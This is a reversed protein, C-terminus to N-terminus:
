QSRILTKPKEKGRGFVHKKFRKLEADMAKARNQLDAKTEDRAMQELWYAVAGAVAEIRDDHALSGRDKTIRTMQYFLSYARNDSSSSAFRSDAEIVERLFALRHQNMIPELTDIIRPEKQGRAWPAEDVGCQKLTRNLVPKFLENFMGGGYNPEVVCLNVKHTKAISALGELTEPGYGDRFGGVATCILMGYSYKLVCYSTEDSGKGSPDIFMVAGTPAVWEDQKSLYVPGNWRDGTLGVMDLDNIVCDPGSGWQIRAPYKEGAGMSLVILDNLKLPYRDADSVTTDLMFQLAYGSRGYSAKREMLDEMTFRTDTPQGVLSPNDHMKQVITPALHARMRMMREFDPYEATWTRITFGREMLSAYVSMETQPTGLYLIRNVDRRTSLIADFEKIAESLRDRMLQTLSNKPVEIDDPIIVDARSGTIQGTIGVAKLSPAQAPLAPGVDFMDARDLQGEKPVLHALLPWSTLVQKVFKVFADARDKSASVVLIKLQPDGLLLWLCFAATIWSKGIGRFAQVMARRPGFQLYDAIEIQLPTPPPLGLFAWLAYLFAAFRTKILHLQHLEQPTM